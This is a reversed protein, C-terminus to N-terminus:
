EVSEDPIDPSLCGHEHERALGPDPLRREPQGPHLQRARTAQADQRRSRGLVFTAEGMDTQAIEELVNEVLHERRKGRRPPVCEFNGQEELRNRTTRDITSRHGYGHSTGQLQEAVLRRQQDRDVVHLPEIRRRRARKCERQAPWGTAVDRTQKRPADRTGVHGRFELVRETRFM